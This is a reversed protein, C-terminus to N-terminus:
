RLLAKHQDVEDPARIVQPDDRVLTFLADEEVGAEVLQRGLANNHYDMAREDATNGPRTEQADTVLKAFEPGFTQTLTFSWLLHRFADEPFDPDTRKLAAAQQKAGETLKILAPVRLPYLSVVQVADPSLEVGAAGAVKRVDAPDFRLRAREGRLPETFLRAESSVGDARVVVTGEFDFGSRTQNDLFLEELGDLVRQTALRPRVLPLVGSEFHGDRFRDFPLGDPLDAEALTLNFDEVALRGSLTALDTLRVAVEAAEFTSSPQGRNPPGFRVNARVGDVIVRFPPALSVPGVEVHELRVGAEGAASVLRPVAHAVMGDIRWALTLWVGIVVFGVVGLGILLWRPWRRRHRRRHRYPDPAPERRPM